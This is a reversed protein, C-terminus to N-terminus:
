FFNDSTVIKVTWLEFCMNKGDVAWPRLVIECKVSVFVEACCKLPGEWCAGHFGAARHGLCLWQWRRGPALLAVHSLFVDCRQAPLWCLSCGICVSVSSELASASGRCHLSECCMWVPTRPATPVWRLAPPRPVTHLLEELRSSQEWGWWCAALVHRVKWVM